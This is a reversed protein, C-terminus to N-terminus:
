SELIEKLRSLDKRNAARMAPAMFPAVLKSFGAPAGRNRLMMRTGGQATHEFSYTTEMPFPGDATRMVLRRGPEFDAVEYTYVLRRGLFEAEFAVASGVVLPKQTKWEVSKINKYWAAANTPDSAYGAVDTRSRDIEITTTVDVPV